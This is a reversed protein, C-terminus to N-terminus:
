QLDTDKALYLQILRTIDSVTIDDDDDLDGIEIATEDPPTSSLYQTILLTIDAITIIGDSDFDGKVVPTELQHVCLRINDYVTYNYSRGLVNTLGIPTIM